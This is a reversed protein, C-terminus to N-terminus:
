INEYFELARLLITIAEARTAQGKAKFSGDDYGNLIKNESLADIADQSWQSISEKDKFDATKTKQLKLINNLIVAIQERTIAENPSFVDLDTGKIIGKDYAISIMEKAWHNQTDKFVKTKDSTLNFAKVIMTIFEARTIEKNPKFTSDKYGSLINKSIAKEIYEKAWHNQIDTLKINIETKIEEKQEQKIEEKTEIEKIVKQNDSSSGGSSSGGSSAGNNSSGTDKEIKDDPLIPLTEPTDPIDPIPPTVPTIAKPIAFVAFDTLHDVKVSAIGDIFTAGDIEIWSNQNIDYFKVSLYYKSTPYKIFNYPIKIEVGQSFNVHDLIGEFDDYDQSDENSVTM